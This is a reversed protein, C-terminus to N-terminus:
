EELEKIKEMVGKLNSWKSPETFRLQTAIWRKLEQLTYNAKIAKSLKNSFEECSQKTYEGQM